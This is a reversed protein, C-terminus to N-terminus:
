VNPLDKVQFIIRYMPMFSKFTNFLNEFEIISQNEKNCFIIIELPNQFSNDREIWCVVGEELQCFENICKVFRFINFNFQNLDCIFRIIAKIKNVAILGKGNIEDWRVNELDWEIAQASSDWRYAIEGSGFPSPINLLNKILFIFYETNEYPTFSFNQFSKMIFFLKLMDDFKKIKSDLYEFFLRIAEIDSYQNYPYMNLDKEVLLDRFDYSAFYSLPNYTEM